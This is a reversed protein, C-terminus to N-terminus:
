GDFSRRLFKARGLDALPPNFIPEPFPPDIWALNFGFWGRNESLGCAAFQQIRFEIM